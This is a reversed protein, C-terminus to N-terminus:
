LGPCRFNKLLRTSLPNQQGGTSIELLVKRGDFDYEVLVRDPNATNIIKGRDLLRFIAWPGNAIITSTEPRVRPNASMEAVSGGRPGPWNVSFVQIPGHVYRQTQGDINIMFEVISPDLEVIKFDMKWAMKKSGVERFFVERISQIQAFADPNPIYRQLQKLYEGQLTPLNSATPMAASMGSGTALSDSMGLTAQTKYRWPREGVDVYSALQKQFFEDAAGGAAFVRTFDEM